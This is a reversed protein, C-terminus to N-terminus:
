KPVVKLGLVDLFSALMQAFEKGVQSKGYFNSVLQVVYEPMEVEFQDEEMYWTSCAHEKM